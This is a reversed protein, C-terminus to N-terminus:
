KKLGKWIRKQAKLQRKERELMRKIIERASKPLLAVMMDGDMVALDREIEAVQEDPEVVAAIEGDYEAKAEAKAAAGAGVEYADVVAKVADWTKEDVEEAFNFFHTQGDASTAMSELKFGEAVLTAMLHEMDDVKLGRGADPYKAQQM